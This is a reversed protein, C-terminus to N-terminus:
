APSAEQTVAGANSNKGQETKIAATAAKILDALINNIGFEDIINQVKELTLEPDEHQLGAWLFDRLERSKMKGKMASDMTEFFSRQGTPDLDEFAIQQGMGFKINRVKDLKVSISNVGM